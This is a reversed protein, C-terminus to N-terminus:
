TARFKFSNIVVPPQITEQGATSAPYLLTTIVKGSFPNFIKFGGSSYSAGIYKDYEDFKVCYCDGWGAEQSYFECSIDSIYSLHNPKSQHEKIRFPTDISMEHHSLSEVM